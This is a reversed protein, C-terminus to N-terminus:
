EVAVNADRIARGYDEFQRRIVSAFKVGCVGVPVLGQAAIQMKVNPAQLAAAFWEALRAAVEKPTRAPAVVGFWIDMDFGSFGSEAVTPVEPLAKIRTQSSTALARLKGTTLLGAAAAYPVLVSTVHGGLLANVAPAPGPYPVFTMKVGAARALVAFGIHVSSAPGVGALTLADPRKRAADFLDSLRRYPADEGVALVMPANTLQCIPEFSTLPDYTTNRLHPDIVFPPSVSLVTNGDPIARAVAEIGITGSAGPRNEVVMTVGRAQSIQEALIRALVDSPSGAPYPVVFRVTRLQSWADAAGMVLMGALAVVGVCRSLNM